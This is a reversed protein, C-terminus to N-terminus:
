VGDKLACNCMSLAKDAFVEVDSIELNMRYHAHDGIPPTYWSCLSLPMDCLAVELAEAMRPAKDASVMYVLRNDDKRCVTFIYKYDLDLPKCVEKKYRIDTWLTGEHELLDYSRYPLASDIEWIAASFPYSLHSTRDGEPCRYRAGCHFIAHEMTKGIENEPKRVDVFMRFSSASYLCIASEGAAMKIDKRIGFIRIDAVTKPRDDQQNSESSM